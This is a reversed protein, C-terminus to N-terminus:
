GGELETSTSFKTIDDQKGGDAGIRSIKNIRDFTGKLM